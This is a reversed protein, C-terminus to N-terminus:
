WGESGGRMPPRRSVFILELGLGRLCWGRSRAPVLRLSAFTAAGGADGGSGSLGGGTGAVAGLLGGGAGSGM